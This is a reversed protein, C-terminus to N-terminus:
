GPARRLRRRVAGRASKEAGRGRATVAAAPPLPACASDASDPVGRCDTDQLGRELDRHAQGLLRAQSPIARANGASGAASEDREHPMRMRTSPGRERSMGDGADRQQDM